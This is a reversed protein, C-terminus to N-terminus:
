NLEKKYLYYRHWLDEKRGTEFLEKLSENNFKFDTLEEIMKEKTNYVGVVVPDGLEENLTGDYDEWISLDCCILVYVNNM